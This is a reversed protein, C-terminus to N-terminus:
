RAVKRDSAKPAALHIIEESQKILTVTVFADM